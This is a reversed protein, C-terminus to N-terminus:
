AQPSIKLLHMANEGLIKRKAEDGANVARIAALM